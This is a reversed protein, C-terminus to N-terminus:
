GIYSEPNSTTTFYPTGRQRFIIGKSALVFPIQEVEVVKREPEVKVYKEGGDITLNKYCEITAREEAHASWDGPPPDDECRDPRILLIQAFGKYRITTKRKYNKNTNKSANITFDTDVRTTEELVEQYDGYANDTDRTDFTVKTFLPM